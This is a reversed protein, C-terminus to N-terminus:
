SVSDDRPDSYPDDSLRQAVAAARHWSSVNLGHQNMISILAVHEGTGHPSESALEYQTIIQNHADIPLWYTQEGRM